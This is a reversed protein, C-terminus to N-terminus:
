PKERRDERRLANTLTFSARRCLNYIRYKRRRARMDEKQIESLLFLLRATENESLRCM